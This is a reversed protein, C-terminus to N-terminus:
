QVAILKGMAEREVVEIYMPMEVRETKKKSGRTFILQQTRRTKEDTM